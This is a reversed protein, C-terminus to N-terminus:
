VNDLYFDEIISDLHISLVKNENLSNVLLTLADYDTSVDFLTRIVKENECVVIGYSETNVNEIKIQHKFIKYYMFSVRLNLICYKQTM